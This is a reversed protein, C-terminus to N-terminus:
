NRNRKLKPGLGHHPGGMGGEEKRRWGLSSSPGGSRTAWCRGLRTDEEKLWCCGSGRVPKMGGRRGGEPWRWCMPVSIGCHRRWKGVQLPRRGRREWGSVSTQLAMLVGGSGGANVKNSWRGEATRPRYFSGEGERTRMAATGWGM